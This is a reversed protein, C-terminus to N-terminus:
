LVSSSPFDVQVALDTGAVVDLASLTKTTTIANGARDVLTVDASYTGEPLPVTVHFSGCAANATAVQGGSEDDIVVEIEDAGYMACLGPDDVGAVLWDVTVSGSGQSVEVPPSSDPGVALSCGSLTMFALACSTFPVM